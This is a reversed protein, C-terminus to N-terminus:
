YSYCHKPFVYFRTNYWPPQIRPIHTQNPTYPSPDGRSRDTIGQPQPLPQATESFSRTGSERMIIEGPPSPLKKVSSGQDCGAHPSTHRCSHSCFFSFSPTSTLPSSLPGHGGTPTESIWPRTASTGRLWDTNGERVHLMLERKMRSAGSNYPGLITLSRHYYNVDLIPRHVSAHLM